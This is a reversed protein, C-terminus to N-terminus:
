KRLFEELTLGNTVVEKANEVGVFRYHWPEFKYNTIEEKDKPYRLIFGYKYANKELWKYEDTKEFELSYNYNEDKAGIDISEGIQSENHGPKANYARTFEGDKVKEAKSYLEKQQEYSIYDNLVKIIIGDRKADNAMMNFQDIVFKNVGPEFDSPLYYKSNVLLIGNIVKFEDDKSVDELDQTKVYYVANDYNIKSFNEEVGYTKLYVGKKVDVKTNSSLDPKKYLFTDNVVRSYNKVKESFGFDEKKEVNDLNYPKNNEMEEIKRTHRTYLIGILICFIVFFVFAFIYKTKLIKKIKEM